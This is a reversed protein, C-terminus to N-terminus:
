FKLFYSELYEFHGHKNFKIILIQFVLFYPMSFISFYLTCISALSTFCHLFMFIVYLIYYYETFEYGCDTHRQYKFTIFSLSTYSFGILLIVSQNNYM